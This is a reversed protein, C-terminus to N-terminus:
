QHASSPGHNQLNWLKYSWSFVVNVYVSYRCLRCRTLVFLSLYKGVYFYVSNGSRTFSHRVKHLIRCLVFFLSLHRFFYVVRRRGSVSRISELPRVHRRRYRQALHRYIPPEAPEQPVRIQRHAASYTSLYCGKLSLYPRRCM